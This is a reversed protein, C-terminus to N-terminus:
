LTILSSGVLLCICYIRTCRDDYFICFLVDIFKFILLYSLIDILLVFYGYISYCLYFLVCLIFCTFLSQSMFEYLCNGASLIPPILAKRTM